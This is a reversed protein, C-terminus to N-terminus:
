SKLIKILFYFITWLTKKKHNDTVPYNKKKCSETFSGKVPWLVLTEDTYVNLAWSLLVNCHYICGYFSINTTQSLGHHDYSKREAMNEWTKYAVIWPQLESSVIYCPWNHDETLAQDHLEGSIRDETNVAESDASHTITPRAFVQRNLFLLTVWCAPSVHHNNLLHIKTHTVAPLCLPCYLVWCSTWSTKSM